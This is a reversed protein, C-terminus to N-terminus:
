LGSQSIRYGIVVAAVVLAVLLVAWVWVWAGIVGSLAVLEVLGWIVPLALLLAVLIAVLVMAITRPTYLGYHDTAASNVPQSGGDTPMDEEVNVQVVSSSQGGLAPGPAEPQEMAPNVLGERRPQPRAESPTEPDPRPTAM